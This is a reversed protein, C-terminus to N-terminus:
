TLIEPPNGRPKHGGFFVSFQQWPVRFRHVFSRTEPPQLLHKDGCSHCVSSASLWHSTYLTPFTETPSSIILHTPVQLIGLRSSGMSPVQRSPNISSFVGVKIVAFGNPLLSKTCCIDVHKEINMEENGPFNFLLCRFFLLSKM